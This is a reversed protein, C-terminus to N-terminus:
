KKDVDVNYHLIFVDLIQFLAIPICTLLLTLTEFDTKLQLNM